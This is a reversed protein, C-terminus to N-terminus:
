NEASSKKSFLISGSKFRYPSTENGSSSKRLSKFLVPPYSFGVCDPNIECLWVFQEYNDTWLSMPQGYLLSDPDPTFEMNLMVDYKSSIYDQDKTYKQLYKATLDLSDGTPVIPFSETGYNWGNEFLTLQEDLNTTNLSLGKNTSNNVWTLYIEWRRRHYSSILGAWEKAAYDEINGNPGWRTIQNRANFEILNLVDEPSNAAASQRADSLWHGFLFNTDSSLLADLDDIIALLVTSLVKLDDVIAVQSTLPNENYQTLTAQHLAYVDAFLNVLVQRGFDVLDYRLPGITGDLQKNLVATSLVKWAQVVDGPRFRRDPSLTLRPRLVVYSHTYSGWDNSYAGNVLLRWAEHVSPTWNGYRRTAYNDLWPLVNVKESRWGM